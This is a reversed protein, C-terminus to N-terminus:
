ALSGAARAEERGAAVARVRSLAGIEYWVIRGVDYTRVRLKDRDIKLVDAALANRLAFVGQSGVHLTYREDTADYEAVAARPELPNIVVRNNSLALRAVHAASDFAAQVAQADGSEWELALNGPVDDHLQPAGEAGAERAYCVAPLPVADLEIMEAADRAQALTEAVVMAIPEGQYRVRDTALCHRPPKAMPSGDRNPFSVKNQLTGFGAAALDAATLILLVGPADRAASVDIGKLEAHPYPSRLLYAQAANPMDLDDTYQGRGTLLRPDETRPVNQGVAFKEIQETM